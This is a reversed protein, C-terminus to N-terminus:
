RVLLLYFQCLDFITLLLITELKLFLPLELKKKWNSAVYGTRISINLMHTLIEGIVDKSVKLLRVSIDDLGTAKANSMAKVEKVIFDFNIDPISFSGSPM